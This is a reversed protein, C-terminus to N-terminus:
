LCIFIATIWGFQSLPLEITRRPHLQLIKSLFDEPLNDLIALIYIGVFGIFHYWRSFSKVNLNISLDNQWFPCDSSLFKLIIILTILNMCSNGLGCLHRSCAKGFICFIQSSFWSISTELLLIGNLRRPNQDQSWVWWLLIKKGTYYPHGKDLFPVAPAKGNLLSIWGQCTKLFVDSPFTGSLFEFVFMVVSM